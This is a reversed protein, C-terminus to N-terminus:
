QRYSLMSLSTYVAIFELSGAMKPGIKIFNPTCLSFFVCRGFCVFISSQRDNELIAAAMEFIM